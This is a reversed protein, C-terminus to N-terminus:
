ASQAEELQTLVSTRIESTKAYLYDPESVKLIDPTAFGWSVAGCDCGAERAAEIDRVEDGICITRAPVTKARRAVKRFISAKGFLAAGCAFQDIKATLEPGLVARVAAEGNSSVVAIQIGTEALADILDAIGDYLAIQDANDTARQRVDAAILPIKWAPIALQTMIDKPPLGRLAEAEDLTLPPLGHHELLESLVTRFWTLSDALTGDFDFVVLDYRLTVSLV